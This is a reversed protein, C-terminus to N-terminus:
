NDNLVSAGIIESSERLRSFQSGANSQEFARESCEDEHSFIYLHDRSTQQLTTIRLIDRMNVPVTEHIELRLLKLSQDTKEVASKKRGDHDTKLM